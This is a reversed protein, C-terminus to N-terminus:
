WPYGSQIVVRMFDCLGSVLGWFSGIVQEDKSRYSLKAQNQNNDPPIPIKVHDETNLKM